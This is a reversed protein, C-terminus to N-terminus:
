RGETPQGPIDYREGPLPVPTPTVAVHGISVQDFVRVGYPEKHEKVSTFGPRVALRGEQVAEAISEQEFTVYARLDNGDLWTQVVRGVVQEQQFNVTIPSGPQISDALQRLADATFVDGYVDVQEGRWILVEIAEGM